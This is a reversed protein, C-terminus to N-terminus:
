EAPKSKRRLRMNKNKSAIKKVLAIEEKPLRLSVGVVFAESPYGQCVLQGLLQRRLEHNITTAGGMNCREWSPAPWACDEGFIYNFALLSGPDEIRTGEDELAVNDFDLYFAVLTNGGYYRAECYEASYEGMEEYAECQKEVSEDDTVTAVPTDALPFDEYDGNDDCAVTLIIAFIVGLVTLILKKM